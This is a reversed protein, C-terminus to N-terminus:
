ISLRELAVLKYRSPTGKSNTDAINPWALESVVLIQAIGDTSCAEPNYSKTYLLQIGLKGCARTMWHTRFLAGNDFFVSDQAGFKLLAKRFCDQVIKQDLTPYFESHM